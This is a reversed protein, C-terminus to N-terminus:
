DMGYGLLLAIISIVWGLMPLSALCILVIVWVPLHNRSRMSVQRLEPHRVVYIRHFITMLMAITGLLVIIAAIGRYYIGPLVKVYNDDFVSPILYAWLLVLTGLLAQRLRETASDLVQIRMVIWLAFAAILTYFYLQYFDGTVRGSLVRWVSLISTFYSAITLAYLTNIILEDSAARRRATMSLFSLILSAHIVTLLTTWLARGITDDFRGVLIAVISILASVIVGGIMIYLFYKRNRTWDENATNQVSEAVPPAISIPPTLQEQGHSEAVPIDTSQSADDNAVPIDTM